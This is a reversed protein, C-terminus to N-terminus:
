RQPPRWSSFSLFSVSGLARLIVTRPRTKLLRQVSHIDTTADHMIEVITSQANGTLPRKSLTRLEYSKSLM